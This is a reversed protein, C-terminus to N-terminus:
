ARQPAPRSAALALEKDQATEVALRIKHMLERPLFQELPYILDEGVDHLKGTNLYTAEMALKYANLANREHRCVINRMKEVVTVLPVSSAVIGTVRAGPNDFNEAAQPDLIKLLSTTLTVLVPLSSLSAVAFNRFTFLTHDSFILPEEVGEISIYIYGKAKLETFIEAPTKPQKPLVVIKKETSSYYSVEKILETPTHNIIAKQLAQIRTEQRYFSLIQACGAALAPVTKAVMSFYTEVADEPTSSAAVAENVLQVTSSTALVMNEATASPKALVSSHARVLDNLIKSVTAYPNLPAAEEAEVAAVVVEENVKADVTHGNSFSLVGSFRGLFSDAASMSCGM